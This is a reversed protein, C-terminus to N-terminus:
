AQGRAKLAALENSLNDVSLTTLYTLFRDILDAKTHKMGTLTFKESVYAQLEKVTRFISRAHLLTSIEQLLVHKDPELLKIGGLGAIVADKKVGSVTIRPQKGVADVEKLLALINSLFEDNEKKLVKSVKEFDRDEYRVRLKLLELLLEKADNNM